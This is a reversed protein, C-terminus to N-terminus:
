NTVAGVESPIPPLRQEIETLRALVDNERRREFQLRVLDSAIKAREEEKLRAREEALQLASTAELLRALLDDRESRIDAV